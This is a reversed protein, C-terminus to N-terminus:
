TCPGAGCGDMASSGFLASAVMLMAPVTLGLCYCHQKAVGQHGLPYPHRARWRRCRSHRSTRALISTLVGLYPFSESAQLHVLPARQYLIGETSLEQMQLFDFAKAVSKELKVLMGSWRCFDAVVELLRWSM